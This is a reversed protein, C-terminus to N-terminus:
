KELAINLEPFYLVDIKSNKFTRLADNVTEVIPEGALNFSTNLLLPIGCLDYFESILKYFHPNQEVTVTQIRCSGDVHVVSPILHKKDEKVDFSFTMHPSEKIGFSDFWENFHEFLISAALPRFFERHKVNNVYNKGNQDAPNYLMSRNGLARPGAESRGQFIAVVKNQTLFKAIHNHEVDVLKKM